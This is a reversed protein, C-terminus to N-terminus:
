NDFLLSRLWISPKSMVTVDSIQSPLDKNLSLPHPARPLQATPPPLVSPLCFLSHETTLAFTPIYKQVAQRLWQLPQIGRCEAASSSITAVAELVRM